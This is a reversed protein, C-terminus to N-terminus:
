AYWWLLSELAAVPERWFASDCFIRGEPKSNKGAISRYKNKASRQAHIKLETAWLQFNVGL